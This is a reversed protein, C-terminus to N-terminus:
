LSRCRGCCDDELKVKNLLAMVDRITGIEFFPHKLAEEISIREDKNPTLM